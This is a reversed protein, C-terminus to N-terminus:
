AFEMERVPKRSYMACLQGVLLLYIPVSPMILRSWDNPAGIIATTLNSVGLIYFLLSLWIKKKLFLMQIGVFAGYIILLIYIFKIGGCFGISLYEPSKSLPFLSWQTATSLKEKTNKFTLWPHSVDSADLADKVEKLGYISTVEGIETWIKYYFDEDHTDVIIRGHTKYSNLVYTRLSPNVIVDPNILGEQRAYFWRNYISVSSVAFIGYKNAFILMYIILIVTSISTGCLGAIAQKRRRQSLLVLTWFMIFVPLLYIFIPRLMLLSILLIMSIVAYKKTYKDYLRISCYILFVVGSIAFSETLIWCNWKFIGPSVAYFLTVFFAIEGSHIIRKAIHYFPYISVFFVIFQGIIAALMFHKACFLSKLIGLYAPYLPTRFMDIEGQSIRDWAIIYSNTDPSTGIQGNICFAQLFLAISYILILRKNLMTTKLM